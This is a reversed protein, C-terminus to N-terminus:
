ICTSPEEWTMSFIYRSGGAQQAGSIGSIALSDDGSHGLSGPPDGVGLSCTRMKHPLPASWRM